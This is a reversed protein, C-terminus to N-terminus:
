SPFEASRLKRLLRSFRQRTNDQSWGEGAGIEEFSEDALFRREILKRELPDLGDLIRKLVNRAELIGESETSGVTDPTDDLSQTRQHKPRLDFAVNRAITMVWGLASQSSDYKLIYKHVRMFTKQFAEETEAVNRIRSFLYHFVLRRHREFFENFSEVDAQQYRRLLEENSAHKLSDSGMKEVPVRLRTARLSGM